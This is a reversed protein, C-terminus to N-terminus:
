TQGFLIGGSSILFFEGSPITITPKLLTFSLLNGGTLSDFIGVAVVTGWSATSNGTEPFRISANTAIEGEENSAGWELKQRSYNGGTIETGGTSKTPAVTFLGLYTHSPSAMPTRGTVHEAIAKRAYDTYNEAM